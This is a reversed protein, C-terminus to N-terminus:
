SKGYKKSDIKSRDEVTLRTYMDIFCPTIQILSVLNCM